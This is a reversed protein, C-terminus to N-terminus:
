KICKQIRSMVDLQFSKIYDNVLEVPSLNKNQLLPLYNMAFNVATERDTQTSEFFTAHARRRAIAALDYRKGGVIQSEHSACLKLALDEKESVPLVVKQSDQMWDLDRWVECGYFGKLSVKSDRVAQIVHVAVAVHTDHKDALNHTYIYEPEALSIIELLQEQLLSNKPDKISSSSCGLQIQAGYKGLDAATNQEKRRTIVMEEDSTHKFKGARPSSAGDAITVGTFSQTTSEYCALIGHFAFIELDDAHAGIALHTTKKLAELSSGSNPVYIDSERVYKM